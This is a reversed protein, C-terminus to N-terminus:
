RATAANTSLAVLDLLHPWAGPVALVCAGALVPSVIWRETRKGTHLRLGDPLLHIARWNQRGVPIPWLLPVGSVTVADGLCHILCGLGVAIGIWPQLGVLVALVPTHFTLIPVALAAAFVLLMWDGAAAAAALTGLGIWGAAAWPSWGSSVHAAAGVLVAFAVTHTLHRHTGASRHDHRTATCRFALKSVHELLWSLARTLPGLLRTATSGECDLDPALAYGAVVVAFPVVISLDHVSALDCVVLGAAFGSLAHDRGM